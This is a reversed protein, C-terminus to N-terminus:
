LFREIISACLENLLERNPKQPLSCTEAAADNKIKEEMETAYAILKDYSWIGENRIALLEKADPRRVIVEGTTIIEHGQRLLRVLHSAHKSDYGFKAEWEARKPNRNLKWEQYHQWIEMARKYSGSNKVFEGHTKMPDIGAESLRKIDKTIKQRAEDEDPIGFDSWKPAREPPNLLWERHRKMRNLQSFAYGTYTHRVKASLFLERHDQIRKWSSHFQLICDQPMWLLELINPNADAAMRFFKRIEYIIRDENSDGSFQSERKIFGTCWDLPPVFVGRLDTDSEPTNMGYAHSGSVCEFIVRDEPKTTKKM